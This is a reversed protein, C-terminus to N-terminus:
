MISNLNILQNKKGGKGEKFGKNRRFVTFKTVTEVEYATIMEEAQAKSAAVLHRSEAM